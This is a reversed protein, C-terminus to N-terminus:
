CNIEIAYDNVDLKLDDYMEYIKVNKHGGTACSGIARQIAVNKVPICRKFRMHEDINGPTACTLMDIPQLQYETNQIIHYMYTRNIAYCAASHIAEFDSVNCYYDNIKAALAKNYKEEVTQKVSDMPQYFRYDLIHIDFNNPMNTIYTKILDLDRLFCVDDEMILIRKYGSEYAKKIVDYHQKSIDLIRRQKETMNDGYYPRRLNKFIIRDFPTFVKEDLIFKPHDTIGVRNLEELAPALRDKSPIFHLLYIADFKDAWIKALEERNM